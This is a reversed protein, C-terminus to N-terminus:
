CKKRQTTLSEIEQVPGSQCANKHALGQELQKTHIMEDLGWKFGKLYNNNVDGKQLHTLGKHHTLM